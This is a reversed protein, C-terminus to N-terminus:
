SSRGKDRSRSASGSPMQRCLEAGAFGVEELMGRLADLQKQPHKRYNRPNPTLENAPVRRFEIIRDRIGTQVPTAKSKGM